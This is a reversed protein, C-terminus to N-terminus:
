DVCTVGNATIQPEAPSQPAEAQFLGGALLGNAGPGAYDAGLFVRVRGAPLNTDPEVALGGLADAVRRAAPEEGKAHRVVSAKRSPANAADGATFGKAGLSDLVRTALGVAGSSNRVDVTVRSNDAAPTPSPSGGSKGANEEGIAKAVAAKVQAPDVQVAQGDGTPLDPRGTPITEFSISGGTIGQMQQAFGLVDWGEDLVVTQKLAEILENLKKSDTLVGASLMKKALGAMFVQQRVVRDLDSRPLDERQRVFALADGGSITQVGAKFDAGSKYDKTNRKLCVEVGGIAQTIKFFGLLNVEAFHDIKVGSVQEITQITTKRGEAQAEQEAKQKPVGQKTLREFADRKSRGFASNIKHQGYGGPIHVYSDRPFSFAVAKRGDNPLRLLILTDTLEGENAGARLQELVDKPLPNGQPDTRSDNGVLLIDTAGDAPKPGERKAIVNTTTMGSSLDKYTAWAYGTVGLVVVSVLTVATKGAVLVARLGHRPRDRERAPAPDRDPRRDGGTSLARTPLAKTPRPHIREPRAIPEGPRSTRPDPPEVAPPPVRGARSRAVTPDGAPPPGPRGQGQGRVPGGPRAAPPPGAPPTRAPGPGRPPVGQGPFGGSGGPRPPRENM